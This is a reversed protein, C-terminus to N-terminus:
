MWNMSSPKTRGEKHTHTRQRSEDTKCFEDLVCTDHLPEVEKKPLQLVHTEAAQRKKEHDNQAQLQM